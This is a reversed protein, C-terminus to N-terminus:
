KWLLTYFTCVSPDTFTFVAYSVDLSNSPVYKWIFDVEIKLGSAILEQKRELAQYAKINELIVINLSM